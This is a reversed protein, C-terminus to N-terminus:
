KTNCKSFNPNLSRINDMIVRSVRRFEKSSEEKIGLEEITLPKGVAIVTKQFPKVAGKRQNYICVPIMPSNQKFAIIACGTKPRLLEGTKSRTGEIFIGLLEQDKLVDQAKDLATTDGKGRNVPFAGLKLFFKSLLKNKFLEAKAMFFIPRHVSTALIIPDINSTHNSCLIYGGSKPINEAGEVEIRYIIKLIPKLIDRLVIYLKSAKM